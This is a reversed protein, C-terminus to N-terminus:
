PTSGFPTESSPDFDSHYAVVCDRTRLAKVKAALARVIQADVVDVDLETDVHLGASLARREGLLIEDLQEAGQRVKLAEEVYATADSAIGERAEGLAYRCQLDQSEGGCGVVLLGALLLGARRM